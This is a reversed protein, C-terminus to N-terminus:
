IWIKYKGANFIGKKPKGEEKKKGKNLDHAAKAADKQRQKQERFRTAATLTPSDLLSKM